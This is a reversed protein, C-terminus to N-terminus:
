SRRVVIMTLDDDVAVPGTFEHVSRRLSALMAAATGDEVNEFLAHLHPEGMLDGATNRAETVGDTYLLIADGPELTFPEGVHYDRGDLIGIIPDTANLTTVTGGAARRLIPPNHGANCWEVEGTVPDILAAFFTLFRGDSLDLVLADNLLQVVRALSDITKVFARLYARTEAMVLAAQLGHGSVDGIAVAIKGGPLEVLCDYYDGSADECLENLGAFAIGAEEREYTEPQLKRQVSQALAVERDYREKEIASTHLQANEIALAAHISLGELFEEDEELFGGGGVKNLLQFVGVLNGKRDKIPACLVERTRYGSKEDWSRNFREDDYADALRLTQGTQAVAGALGQGVPLTIELSKDGSLVRSWLTEGDDKLVYVTGRDAGVASAATDLILGLLEDLNLSQHLAYSAELLKEQRAVRAQLDVDDSGM